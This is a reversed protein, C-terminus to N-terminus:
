MTTPTNALDGPTLIKAQEGRIGYRVKRVEWFKQMVMTKSNEESLLRSLYSAFTIRFTPPFCPALNQTVHESRRVFFPRTRIAQLFLFINNGNLVSVSCKYEKGRQKLLYKRNVNTKIINFQVDPIFQKVTSHRAFIHFYVQLRSM